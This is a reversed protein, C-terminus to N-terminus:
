MILSSKEAKMWSKLAKLAHDIESLVIGLESFFSETESKRLDTRLAKYIDKEHNLLAKKLAILQRRRFDFPKTNGNDFFNRKETFYESNNNRVMKYRELILETTRLNLLKVNDSLEFKM